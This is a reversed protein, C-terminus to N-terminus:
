SGNLNAIHLMQGRCSDPHRLYAAGAGEQKDQIAEKLITKLRYAGEEFQKQITTEIIQIGEEGVQRAILEKLAEEEGKEIYNLIQEQDAPNLSAIPTTALLAKKM